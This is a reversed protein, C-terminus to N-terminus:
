RRGRRPSPQDSLQFGWYGSWDRLSAVYEFGRDEPFYYKQNEHTYRNENPRSLLILQHEFSITVNAAAGEEQIIPVDLKGIFLPYPDPVLEGSSDTFGFWLVAARGHQSKNLILSYVDTPIGTLQVSLGEAQIASIERIPAIAQLWGNGLFTKGNWIIAGVGTWLNIETDDFTSELLFVPRVTPATLEEIFEPQLDRM